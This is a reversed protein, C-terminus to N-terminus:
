DADGGGGAMDLHHIKGSAAARPPRREVVPLGAQRWQLEVLREIGSGEGISTLFTEAVAAEDLPGLAPHVLLRLRPGGHASEEEVLQYDTPGGGFRAPLTEELVKVVDTDLLAIGGANLKEFSRVARLHRKWGLRELPCGCSRPGLEAEDGLSVNLLAVRATSRLSTVLLARPRFPGEATGAQILAHLDSAVHFDDTGDPELCGYGMLGTESSGYLPQVVAGAGQITRLRAATVPEGSVSFQGGRLDLGAQRAAQCLRVASSPFTWLHPIRGAQLVTAMWRAIPLPADVPVHEPAPLPLGVLLSGLRQLHVSFRYRPHLGPARVDVQSFWRSVRLRLTQYHHLRGIVASGPVAWTAHVWRDGGRAQFLLRLNGAQVRLSAVDLALATRAGRSGSSHTVVHAGSGPVRLRHPEVTVSASGRVAPRRGKMEDVTLYVGRRYLAGLAGEIGDQRVLKQFDGLECGALALLARYPSDPNRYIASDVFALFDAERHRFRARLSAHAEPLGVPRSATSVFSYVFRAGAGIDHLTVGSEKLARHARAM